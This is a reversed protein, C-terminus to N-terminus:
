FTVDLIIEKGDRMLKLKTSDGKNFKNLANMYSQVDTFKHEGLQTLVDGTKVGAKEAAKGASVGDVHVGAGNYTYDPM